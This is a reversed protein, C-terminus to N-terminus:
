FDLGIDLSAASHTLAGVSIRDVGTAAIDAVNELTVKGSAELALKERLGQSDRYAVAKRLEDLSFNDLLVIDVREVKCVEALQELNDVEVEVFAPAASVRTLLEQLTEALREVPVGALQRRRLVVRVQQPVEGVVLHGERAVAEVAGQLQGGRVGSV